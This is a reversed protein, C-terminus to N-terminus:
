KFFKSVVKFFDSFEEKTVIEMIVETFVPLDMDKVEDTTVGAVSAVFSFIDHEVKPLGDLIMEVVEVVVNFGLFTSLDDVESNKFDNFTKKLTEIKEPTIKEKIKEFGIKRLITLMPMVDTAKLKRLNM